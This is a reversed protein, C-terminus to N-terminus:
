QNYMMEGVEVVRVGEGLVRYSNTAYVEDVWPIYYGRSFIGHSVALVVQDAGKQHLLQGIGSFTGGGDCIDDLIVCVRGDLRDALVKFGSLKGTKVDRVKLCEVVPLQLSAAAKYVKKLAGADPSILIIADREVGQAVLDAVVAAAFAVNEIPQARDIVAVSVDSHPDFIKVSRFGASNILQGIVKLSFPEGENMVRDMRAAMLYTVRLHVEAFGLYELANKAFLALLIDQASALRTLIAIPQGSFEVAMNADFCIHPQGDPFTFQTYKVDSAVSDLLNVTLM